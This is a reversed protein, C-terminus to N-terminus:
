QKPSKYRFDPIGSATSIGAGTFVVIRNAEQVQLVVCQGIELLLLLGLRVLCRLLDFRGMQKPVHKRRGIKDCHFVYHM